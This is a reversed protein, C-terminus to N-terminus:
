MAFKTPPNFADKVCRLAQHKPCKLHIVRYTTPNQVDYPTDCVKAIAIAYGLEDPLTRFYEYSGLRTAQTQNSTSLMCVYACPVPFLHLQPLQLEPTHNSSKVRLQPQMARLSYGLHTIPYQSRKKSLKRLFKSIISYILREKNDINVLFTQHSPSRSFTVEHQFFLNQTKWLLPYHAGMDVHEPLICPTNSWLVQFVPM